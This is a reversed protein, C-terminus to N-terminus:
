PDRPAFPTMSTVVSLGFCFSVLISTIILLTVPKECMAPVRSIIFADSYAVHHFMILSMSGKWAPFGAGSM